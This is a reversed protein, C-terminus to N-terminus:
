GYVRLYVGPTIRRLFLACAPISGHSLHLMPQRVLIRRGFFSFFFLFFHVWSILHWARPMVGGSFLVFGFVNGASGAPLRSAQMYPVMTHPTAPAGAPLGEMGAGAFPPAQSYLDYGVPVFGAQVPFGPNSQPPRPRPSPENVYFLSFAAPVHFFFVSFFQHVVRWEGCRWRSFALGTALSSVEVYVLVFSAALFRETTGTTRVRM